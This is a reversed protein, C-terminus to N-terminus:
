FQPRNIRTCEVSLTGDGIMSRLEENLESSLLPLISPSNIGAVEKYLTSFFSDVVYADFQKGRHDKLETLAENVSLALRYSRDTTMADFSDALSMIKAGLPINKGELRDPYGNGDVREHHSRTIKPVGDWPFNVKSLIEYGIVPHSNLELMEDRTLPIEKNIISRDIAIKGVDHLLGAIRIGEMEEESWGIEKAITSCYTAVRHSHGKTYADKADIATAFAHITDYYIRSLNEYLTKNEGYKHILRNLLSHSHLSVAIHHAMVSLLRFDDGSYDDGSFKDGVAIFGLFEDRVALPVVIRAAAKELDAEMAALPAPLTAAPGKLDVPGKWGLLDEGKAEGVGMAIDGSEGTGKSVIAKISKTTSDYQFIAGASASFAGMIMYLSSRVVRQFDEPSTLVEGLEALADLNFLLKELRFDVSTM